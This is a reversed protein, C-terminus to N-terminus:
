VELKGSMLRSLLLDRQKILNQNQTQLNNIQEMINSTFNRFESIIDDTPVVIKINKLKEITLASQSTGITSSLLQQKGIDSKIWFYLYIAIETSSSSQIWTLNGDKFYFPKNDSVLLPIGITGVSTLLIDNKKPVGYKNKFELYKEESIYLSESIAKGNSLQIVEKSRYFPVGYEVYDSLYVRKSSTVNVSDGLKGYKWGQPMGKEFKTEKYNPFRFRVFWEKYLNEAVKELLEIRRNNNEILEDYTSLIDGIKQQTTLMPLSIKLNKITNTNLNQQSGGLKLQVLESYRALLNYFVFKYYVEKKNFILNCCAQNTALPIKNVAVRGATKGDGYMAIIVSNEPILKASSNNLGEETIKQETSYIFNNTVEKTKLWCISGDKYYEQKKTSPTGGSVIKECVEGLRKEEWKSM